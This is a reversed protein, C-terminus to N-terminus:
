KPFEDTYSAPMVYENHIFPTIYYYGACFLGMPVMISAFFQNPLLVLISNEDM